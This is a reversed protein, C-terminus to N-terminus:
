DKGALVSVMKDKSIGLKKSAVSYDGGADSVAKKISEKSLPSKKTLNKASFPKDTPKKAAPKEVSAGSGPPPSKPPPKISTGSAKPPTRSASKRAKDTRWDFPDNDGFEVPAPSPKKGLQSISKTGDPDNPNNSDLSNGIMDWDLPEEENGLRDNDGFDDGGGLPEGFLSDDDAWGPKSAPSTQPKNLSTTPNVVSAPAVGQGKDQPLAAVSSNPDLGKAATRGYVELADLESKAQREEDDLGMAQSRALLDKFTKQFGQM